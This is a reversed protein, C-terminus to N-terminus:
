YHIKRLVPDRQTDLTYLPLDTQKKVLTAASNDQETTLAKILDTVETNPFNVAITYNITNFELEVTSNTRIFRNYDGLEFGVIKNDGNDTFNYEREIDGYLRFFKKINQASSTKSLIPSTMTGKDESTMEKSITPSAVAPILMAVTNSVRDPITLAVVETDKKYYIDGSYYKNFASYVGKYCNGILTQM